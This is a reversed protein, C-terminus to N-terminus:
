GGSSSQGMSIMFNVFEYAFLVYMVYRVWDPAEKLIVKWFDKRSANGVLRQAVLVAPFWVVFIGVHLVWFASPVNRGMLAGIHVWLSLLLGIGSLWVFV